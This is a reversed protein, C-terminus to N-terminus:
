RKYALKEIMRLPQSYVNHRAVPCDFKVWVSRSAAVFAELTQNQAWVVASQGTSCDEMRDALNSQETAGGSSENNAVACSQSVPKNFRFSARPIYIRTSVWYTKFRPYTKRISTESIFVNNKYSLQWTIPARRGLWDTGSFCLWSFTWGRGWPGGRSFSGVFSERPPGLPRPQFFDVFRQAGRSNGWYRTEWTQYGSLRTIKFASHVPNEYTGVAQDRRRTSQERSRSM